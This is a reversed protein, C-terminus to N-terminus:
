QYQFSPALSVPVSAVLSRAVSSGRGRTSRGRPAAVPGRPRRGSRVRRLGSRWSGREGFSRSNVSCIGRVLDTGCGWKVQRCSSSFWPTDLFKIAALAGCRPVRAVSSYHRVSRKQDSRWLRASQRSASGWSAVPPPMLSTMQCFRSVALFLGLGAPCSRGKSLLLLWLLVPCNKRFLM